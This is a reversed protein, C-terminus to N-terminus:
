AVAGVALMVLGVCGVLAGAAQLRTEATASAAIWARTAAMVLIAVCTATVALGLLYAGLVGRDAGVISEALAYGHVLGAVAALTLWARGGARRGLAVLVGAAIVTAAALTDSMPLALAGFHALIGTASAALFAGILSIGAPVVAAAIGIAVVFALHDPGIVPHALGSLLGEGFSAPLKGGMMHHALAPGAAAAWATATATAFAAKRGITAM